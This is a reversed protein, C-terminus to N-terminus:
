KKFKQPFPLPPKLIPQVKEEPAVVESEKPESEKNVVKTNRKKSDLEEM